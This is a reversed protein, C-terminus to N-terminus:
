HTKKKAALCWSDITLQPNLNNSRLLSSLELAQEALQAAQVDGNRVMERLSLLIATFINKAEEITGAQFLTNNLFSYSSDARLQQIAELMSKTDYEGISHKGLFEIQCRSIITPLITGIHNTCIIFQNAETQDELTKLLANQAEAKASQFDYIIILRQTSSIVLEKKLERIQGISLSKGDEPLIKYVSSGYEPHELIFSSMATEFEHPDTSVLLRPVM